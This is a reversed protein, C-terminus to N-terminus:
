AALPARSALVDLVDGMTTVDKADEARIEIGTEEEFMQAIEVIDLSDIGLAELKTSEAISDVDADIEIGESLIKRLLVDIEQRTM